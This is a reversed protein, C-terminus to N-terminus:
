ANSRPPLPNSHILARAQVDNFSALAEPQARAPRGVKKRRWRALGSAVGNERSAKNLGDFRRARRHQLKIGNTCCRRSRGYCRCQCRPSYSSASRSRTQPIIPIKEARVLHLGCRVARPEVGSSGSKYWGIKKTFLAPGSSCGAHRCSIHIINRLSPFYVARSIFSHATPPILFAFACTFRARDSWRKPEGRASYDVTGFRIYSSFIV